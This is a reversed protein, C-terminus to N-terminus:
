LRSHRNKKILNLQMAAKLVKGSNFREDFEVIEERCVRQMRAQRRQSRILKVFVQVTENGFPLSLLREYIENAMHTALSNSHFPDQTNTGPILRSCINWQVATQADIKKGLLLM